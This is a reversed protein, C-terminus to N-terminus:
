KSNLGPIKDIRFEYMLEESFASKWASYGDRYRGAARIFAQSKVGPCRELAKNEYELDEKAAAHFDLRDGNLEKQFFRYYIGSRRVRQFTLGGRGIASLEKSVYTRILCDPEKGASQKGRVDRGRLLLDGSKRPFAIVKGGRFYIEFEDLVCTLQIDPLGEKCLHFIRNGCAATKESFDISHSELTMADELYLGSYALWLFSRYICKASKARDYPFALELVERLDAPSYVSTERVNGTCM